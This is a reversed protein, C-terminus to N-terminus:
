KIQLSTRTVLEAGPIAAGGKLADKLAVKDPERTIKERIYGEPLIEMDSVEVAVSERLSLKWNGATVKDRGTAQMWYRMYDKMREAGKEARDAREKLRKAESKCAEAEAKYNAIVKSYIDCKEAFNQDNIALAEEMEPTVEGESAEIDTLIRIYEEAIDYLTEKM